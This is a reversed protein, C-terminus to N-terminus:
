IKVQEYNCEDNFNEMWLSLLRRAEGKNLGFEEVIYPSAGFMNTAGSSRLANLFELVEKESETTPRTTETTAM